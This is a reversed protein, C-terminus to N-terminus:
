GMEDKGFQGLYHKDKLESFIGTCINDYVIRARYCMYTSVMAIGLLISQVICIIIFISSLITSCVNNTIVDLQLISMTLSIGITFVIGQVGLFSLAKNDLNQSRSVTAAYEKELDNQFDLRSCPDINPEFDKPNKVFEEYSLFNIDESM